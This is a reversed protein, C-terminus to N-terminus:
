FEVPGIDALKTAEIQGRLVSLRSQASHCKNAMEARKIGMRKIDENLARLLCTYGELEQKTARRQAELMELQPVPQTEEDREPCVFREFADWRDQTVTLGHKDYIISM